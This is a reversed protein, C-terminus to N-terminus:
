GHCLRGGKEDTQVDVFLADGHGMSAGVSRGVDHIDTLDAGSFGVDVFQDPPKVTVGGLQDDGILRAGAAVPQIARERPFANGAEDDRRREDRLLCAVLHLGITAISL